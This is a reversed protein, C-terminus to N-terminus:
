PHSRAKGLPRDVTALHTKWENSRAVLTRQWPSLWGEYLVLLM